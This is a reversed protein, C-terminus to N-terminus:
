SFRPPNDEMKKVRGKLEEITRQQQEIVTGLLGFLENTRAPHMGKGAEKCFKVLTAADESETM